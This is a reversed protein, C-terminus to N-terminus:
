EETPGVAEYVLRGLADLAALGRDEEGAPRELVNDLFVSLVYPQGSVRVWGVDHRCGPLTGSKHGVPIDKPVGAAVRGRSTHELLAIMSDCADRTLIERRFIARLLTGMERATTWNELGNRQADFDMFEREMRTVTLGLKAARENVSRFGLRRLLINAAVNDSESIMRRAFQLYTWSSGVPEHQFSGTGGVLDTSLLTHSDTWSFRGEIAQAHAEVLLLVKNVSASPVPRDADIVLLERGDAQSLWLSLRVGPCEREAAMRLERELRSMKEFRSPVCGAALLLLLGFPVPGRIKM